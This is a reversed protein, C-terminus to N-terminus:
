RFPSFRPSLSVSLRGEAHLPGDAVEGVSFLDGSDQLLGWARQFGCVSHPLRASGM